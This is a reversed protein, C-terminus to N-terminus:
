PMYVTWDICGSYVVLVGACSDVPFVEMGRLSHFTIKPPVDVLKGGSYIYGSAWMWDYLLTEVLLPQGVGVRETTVYLAQGETGPSDCLRITVTDVDENLVQSSSAM